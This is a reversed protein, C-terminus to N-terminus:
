PFPPRIFVADIGEDLPKTLLDLSDYQQTVRNRDEIAL